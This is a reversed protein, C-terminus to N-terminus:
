LGNIPRWFMPQPDRGKLLRSQPVESDHPATIM